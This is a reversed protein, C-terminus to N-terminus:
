KAVPVELLPSPSASNKNKCESTLYLTKGDPGYCISEGQVRQPMQVRRPPRAFGQEWTEKPGRVFEFADGYTLVIARLGDPSIDM